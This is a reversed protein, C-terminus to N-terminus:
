RGKFASIVHKVEGVKGNACLVEFLNKTIYSFKTNDSLLHGVQFVLFFIIKFRINM